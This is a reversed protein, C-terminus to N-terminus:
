VCRIPCRKVRRISLPFRYPDREQVKASFSVTDFVGSQICRCQSANANNRYSPGHFDLKGHSTKSKVLDRTSARAFGHFKSLPGRGLLLLTALAHSIYTTTM